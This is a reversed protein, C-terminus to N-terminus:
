QSYLNLLRSPKVKIRAPCLLIEFIKKKLIKTESMTDYRIIARYKKKVIKKKKKKKKQEVVVVVLEDEGFVDGVLTAGSM